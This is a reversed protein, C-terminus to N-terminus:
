ELAEWERGREALMDVWNRQNDNILKRGDYYTQAEADPIREVPWGINPTSPPQFELVAFFSVTAAGVTAASLAMATALRM